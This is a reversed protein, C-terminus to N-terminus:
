SRCFTYWVCPAALCLLIRHKLSASPRLCQFQAHQGRGFCWSPLIRVASLKYLVGNWKRRLLDTCFAPPSAETPAWVPLSKTFVNFIPLHLLVLFLIAGCGGLVMLSFRRARPLPARGVESTARCRSGWCPRWSSSQRRASVSWKKM